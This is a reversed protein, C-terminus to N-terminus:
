LYPVEQVVNTVVDLIDQARKPGIGGISMLFEPGAERVMLTTIAKVGGGYDVLSGNADEDWFKYIKAVTGEDLVGDIPATDDPYINHAELRKGNWNFM